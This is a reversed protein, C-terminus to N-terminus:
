QGNPQELPLRITFTTGEGPTSDVKIEGHHKQIINYSISLGLGTGVGVGKTTFGPDFIKKLAAPHIGKGTDRISIEIGDSSKKTDIFLEGKNEIAHAANVFLNMFVQNLQNPYCEIAPLEGYNRIINVKNKLEHQVLTLTSDIGDHIDASQFEAEDLRAFNKLSRVIETIRKGATIIVGNNQELLGVVKDVSAADNENASGNKGLLKNLKTICRATVDAASNVAGIPNNVEHAVGAVLNGLSAMKDKMVLQDQARELQDLTNQLRINKQNLEATRQEVRSELTRNSEELQSRKVALAESNRRFRREIIYGLLLIFIFFTYHSIWNQADFIGLGVSVDYLGGLGVIIFGVVMLRGDLRSDKRRAKIVAFTGISITVTVLAMYIFIVDGMHFVNMADLVVIGLGVSIHLNRLRRLLRDPGIMNNMFGFLGIPFLFFPSLGLYYRLELSPILLEGIPDILVYYLGLFGSLLAFWGLFDPRPTSRIFYIFATFVGIFFFLAGLIVSDLNQRFVTLILESKSGIWTSEGADIVGMSNSDGSYVRISLEKGAYNGRLPVLHRVIGAFKSAGEPTFEGYRYIMEQDLYLEFSKLVPPLFLAADNYRTEPLRVRYWIFNDDNGRASYRLCFAKEWGSDWDSFWDEITLQGNNFDGHRYEWGLNVRQPPANEVTEGEAFLLMPLIFAAYFWCKIPVPNM